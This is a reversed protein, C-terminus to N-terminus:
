ALKKLELIRKILVSMLDWSLKKTVSDPTTDIMHRLYIVESELSAIRSLVGHPDLSSPIVM